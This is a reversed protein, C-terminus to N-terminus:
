RSVPAALAQAIRRLEDDSYGKAHQHMVTADPRQGNKFALLTQYLTGADRGSIPPISGPARPDPTHCTMCTAAWSRAARDPPSAQAAAPTSLFAPLLALLPWAWVTSRRSSRRHNMNESEEASPGTRVGIWRAQSQL